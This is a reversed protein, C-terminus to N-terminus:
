LSIVREEQLELFRHLRYELRVGPFVWVAMMALSHHHSLAEHLRHRVDKEAPQM